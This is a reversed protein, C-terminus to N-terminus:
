GHQEEGRGTWIWSDTVSRPLRELEHTLDQEIRGPETLCGGQYPKRAIACASEHNRLIAAKCNACLM